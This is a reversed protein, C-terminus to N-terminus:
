KKEEIYLTAESNKAFAIRGKLPKDLSFNWVLGIFINGDQSKPAFSINRKEYTGVVVPGGERQAKNLAGKSVSTGLSFEQGM